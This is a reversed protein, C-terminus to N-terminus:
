GGLRGAAVRALAFGNPWSCRCAALQVGKELRGEREPAAGGKRNGGDRATGNSVVDSYGDCSDSDYNGFMEEEGEIWRHLPLVPSALRSLAGGGRDVRCSLIKAVRLEGSARCVMPLAAM